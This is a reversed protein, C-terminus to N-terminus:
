LPQKASYMSSWDSDSLLRNYFFTGRLNGTVFGVNDRQDYGISLGNSTLVNNVSGVNTVGAPQGNVFFTIPGAASRTVGVLSWTNLPINVTSAIMTGALGGPYDYYYLQGVNGLELAYEGNNNSSRQQLITYSTSAFSSPKIWSGVSYDGTGSLPGV